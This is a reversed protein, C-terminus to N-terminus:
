ALAGAIHLATNQHEDPTNPTVGRRLLAIICDRQGVLSAVHLPTYGSFRSAHSRRTPRYTLSYSPPPCKLLISGERQSSWACCLSRSDVCACGQFSNKRPSPSLALCSLVPHPQSHVVCGRRRHPHPGHGRRGARGCLGPLWAQMGRLDQRHACAKRPALTPPHLGARKGGTKWWHNASASL